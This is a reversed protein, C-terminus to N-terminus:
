LRGYADVLLASETDPVIIEDESLLKLGPSGLVLDADTPFGWIQVFHHGPALNTALFAGKPTTQSGQTRRLWRRDFDSMYYTRVGPEFLRSGNKGTSPAINAIVNMLHNGACDAVDGVLQSKGPLYQDGATMLQSSLEAKTTSEVDFADVFSTDIRRYFRVVPHQGDATTRVFVLSPTSAIDTTFHGDSESTVDALRASLAVDSFMEVRVTPLPEGSFMDISEGQLTLPGLASPEYKACDLVPDYLTGDDAAAQVRTSPLQFCGGGGAAICQYPDAAPSDDTCAALVLLAIAFRV